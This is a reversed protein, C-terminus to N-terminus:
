CSLRDGAAVFLAPTPVEFQCKTWWGQRVRLFVFLRTARNEGEPAVVTTAADDLQLTGRLSAPSGAAPDVQAAGVIRKRFSGSKMCDKRTNWRLQYAVLELQVTGGLPRGDERLLEFAVPGGLAVPVQELRLKWRRFHARRWAAAAVLALLVFGVALGISGGICAVWQVDSKLSAAIRSMALFESSLLIMFAALIIENLLTGTRYWPRGSRDAAWAKARRCARRHVVLPTLIYMAGLSLSCVAMVYGNYQIVGMLSRFDRRIAEAHEEAQVEEPTATAADYAPREFLHDAMRQIGTVQYALFGGSVIFFLGVARLFWVAPTRCIHREM